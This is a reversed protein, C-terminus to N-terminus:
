DFILHMDTLGPEGWLGDGGTPHVTDSPTSPVVLELLNRSTSRSTSRGRDVAPVLAFPSDISSVHRRAVAARHHARETRMAHGEFEQLQSSASPTHLLVSSPHM